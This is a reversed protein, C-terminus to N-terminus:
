NEEYHKFILYIVNKVDTDNTNFWSIIGNKIFLKLLRWIRRESFLFTIYRISDSLSTLAATCYVILPM